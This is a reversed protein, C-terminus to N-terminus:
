NKLLRYITNPHDKTSSNYRAVAHASIVRRAIKGTWKWDDKATFRKSALGNYHLLHCTLALSSTGPFHTTIEQWNAIHIHYNIFFCLGLLVAQHSLHQCLGSVLWEVLSHVQNRALEQTEEQEPRQQRTQEEIMSRLADCQCRRDVQRMQECCEQVRGQDGRSSHSGRLALRPRSESVYQECSGMEVRQIQEQCSGSRRRVSQDDFEVTTVTTRYSSANAILALLLTALAAAVIFFRAMKSSFPVTSPNQHIFSTIM